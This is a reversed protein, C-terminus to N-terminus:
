SRAASLLEEFYAVRDRDGKARAAGLGKEAFDAAQAQRRAQLMAEAARGLVDLDSPLRETLRRYTDHAEDFDGARLFLQALRLDYDNRRHGQNHECDYRLGAELWERAKAYDEQDSALQVLHSYYPFRDTPPDGAPRSVLAEAFKGALEQADLRRSTQFATALDTESLEEVPLAALEQVNMAAIDRRGQTPEQVPRRTPLGLQHRLRDFDYTNPFNAALLEELFDILGQLKRRLVGHAAADVPSVGDLSRLPEQIWTSEFWTRVAEKSLREKQEASAIHATLYTLCRQAGESFTSTRYNDQLETVLGSCIEKFLKLCAQHRALDTGHVAILDASPFWGFLGLIKPLEFLPTSENVPALPRDAIFGHVMAEDRRTPVFRRDERFRDILADTDSIKYVATWTNWDSAAEMGAGFRLVEALKWARAATDDDPVLAVYRDLADLAALNEGLFARALGLNYWAAADEPAESTLQEFERVAYELKGEKVASAAQTWREQRDPPSSPPPPLLAPLQRAVAPYECNESEFVLKFRERLEDDTPDYRLAIDAAALAALPRRQLVETLFINHYILNMLERDTPPALRAAQRYLQLAGVTEKEDMRITGRILYARAYNPNIELAKDLAAEAEEVRDLDILIGAKYGLVTPNDPYKQILEDLLKLAAAQQQSELLDTVRQLDASIAQCCWKFKKGSGCPCPDYPNKTM